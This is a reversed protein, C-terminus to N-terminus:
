GLLTEVLSSPVVARLEGRGAKQFGQRLQSDRMPARSIMVRFAVTVDLAKMAAQLFFFHSQGFVPIEFLCPIAHGEVQPLIIVVPRMSSQPIAGRPLFTDQNGNFTSRRNESGTRISDPQSFRL